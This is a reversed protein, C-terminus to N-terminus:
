LTTHAVTATAESCGSLNGYSMYVGRAVTATASLFMSVQISGATNLLRCSMSPCCTESEVNRSDALCCYTEYSAPFPYQIRDDSTGVHVFCLSLSSFSGQAELCIGTLMVELSEQDLDSNDLIADTLEVHNTTRRGDEYFISLMM